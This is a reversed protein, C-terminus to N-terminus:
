VFTGEHSQEEHSSRSDDVLLGRLLAVITDVTEGLKDADAQERWYLTAGHQDREVALWSAPLDAHHEGINVAAEPDDRTVYFSKTEGLSHAAHLRYTACQIVPRKIVGGSSVRDNASPQTDEIRTLEVVLGRQRALLRLKSLRREREGPMLWLIPGFAAIFLLAILIWVM